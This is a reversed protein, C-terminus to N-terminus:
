SLDVFEPELFQLLSIIGEGGEIVSGEMRLRGIMDMSDNYNYPRVQTDARIPRVGIVLACM